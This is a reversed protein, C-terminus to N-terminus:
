SFCIGVLLYSLGSIRILSGSTLAATCVVTTLSDKLGITQMDLNVLQVLVTLTLYPSLLYVTINSRMIGWATCMSYKSSKVVLAKM